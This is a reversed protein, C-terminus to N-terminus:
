GGIDTYADQMVRSGRSQRRLREVEQMRATTCGHLCGPATRPRQKRCPSERGGAYMFRDMFMTAESEQGRAVYEGDM